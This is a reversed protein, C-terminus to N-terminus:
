ELHFDLILVRLEFESDFIVLSTQLTEEGYLVAYRYRTIMYFEETEFFSVYQDTRDFNGTEKLANCANKDTLPNINKSSVSHLNYRDIRMVAKEDTRDFYEKILQKSPEHIDPCSEFLYTESVNQNGALVQAWLLSLFFLTTATKM